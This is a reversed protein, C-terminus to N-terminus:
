LDINRRVLSVGVLNDIDEVTHYYNGDRDSEYLLIHNMRLKEIVMSDIKAYNKANLEPSPMARYACSPM